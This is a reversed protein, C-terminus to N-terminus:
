LEDENLLVAQVLFRNKSKGTVCTSLTLLHSDTTLEVDERYNASEQGDKVISELYALRGEETTFDNTNLIHEDGATYAAYVEYVLVKDGIYIYVYPSNAFFTRDEFNHLTAFM